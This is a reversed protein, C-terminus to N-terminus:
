HFLFSHSCMTDHQASKTQSLPNARTQLVRFQSQRALFRKCRSQGLCTRLQVTSPFQLLSHSSKGAVRREIKCSLIRRSSSRRKLRMSSLLQFRGAVLPTSPAAVECIKIKAEVLHRMIKRRSLQYLIMQSCDTVRMQQLAQCSRNEIVSMRRLMVDPKYSYTLARLSLITTM